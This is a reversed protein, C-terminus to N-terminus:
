RILTTHAVKIGTFIPIHYSFLNVFNGSKPDNPPYCNANFKRNSQAAKSKQDELGVEYKEGLFGSRCGGGGWGRQLAAVGGLLRDQAHVGCGLGNIFGQVGQEAGLM